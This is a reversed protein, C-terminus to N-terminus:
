KIFKYVQKTSFDVRINKLNEINGPHWTGLQDHYGVQYQVSITLLKCVGLLGIALIAIAVMVEVLSFGAKNRSLVKLRFWLNLKKM